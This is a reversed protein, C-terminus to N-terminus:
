VRRPRPVWAFLSARKTLGDSHARRMQLAREALMWVVESSPRLPDSVAHGDELSLAAWLEDGVQGILVDGQPARSSDLEALRQVAGADAPRATRILLSPVGDHSGLVKRTTLQKLM